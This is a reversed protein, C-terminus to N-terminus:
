HGGSGTTREEARRCSRCDNTQMCFTFRLQERKQLYNVNGKPRALTPGAWTDLSPGAWGWFHELGLDAWGNQTSIPGRNEPNTGPGTTQTPGVWMKKYHKILIYM